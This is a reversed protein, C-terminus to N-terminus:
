EGNSFQKISVVDELEVYMRENRKQWTSRTRITESSDSASTPSIEIYDKKDINLIDNVGVFHTNGDRDFKVEAGIAYPQGDQKLENLKEKLNTHKATWYDYIVGWGEVATEWNINSGNFNKKNNNIDKPTITFNLPNILRTLAKAALVVACGVASMEEEGNGVKDDAWDSDQMLYTDSYRLIENGDPDTYKLPNDRFVFIQVFILGSGTPDAAVQTMKVRTHRDYGAMAGPKTRTEMAGKLIGDGSPDPL